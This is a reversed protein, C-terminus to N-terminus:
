KVYGIISIFHFLTGAMVWLHWIGHAHNFLKWRDMVYFVVGICYCAGGLALWYFGLATIAEYIGNYDWCCTWGMLLYIAIQLSEIRNKIFVDLLIGMLAMSWVFILILNGKTGGLGVLLYPTYTAAIMIYIAIHDLKRFIQKLRVPHLSHYITSLTYLLVSSFGFISYSILVKANGSKLGSAVLASLGVISFVAGCFHTITNLREGQYM